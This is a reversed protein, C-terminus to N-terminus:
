WQDGFAVGFCLAGSADTYLHLTSSTLWGEHMFFSCGNFDPLFTLWVRMDSKVVSNLRVLHQLRKVGVTLDILRRLFAQGPLVVSCTLNLLGILSQLEKLTVKQRTLFASRLSVCRPLLAIWEVVSSFSEFTKCSSACGMVM